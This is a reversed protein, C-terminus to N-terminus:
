QASRGYNAKPTLTIVLIKNSFEGPMSCFRTIEKGNNTMQDERIASVGVLQRERVKDTLSARLKADVTDFSCDANKQLNLLEEPKGSRDTVYFRGDSSTVINVRTECSGSYLSRAGTFHCQHKDIHFFRPSDRDGELRCLRVTVTLEFPYRNRILLRQYEMEEQHDSIVGSDVTQVLFKGGTSFRSYHRVIVGLLCVLVFLLLFGRFLQRRNGSFTPKDLEIVVNKAKRRLPNRNHFEKM